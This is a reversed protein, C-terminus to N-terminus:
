LNNGNKWFCLLLLQNSNNRYMVHVYDKGVPLNHLANVSVLVTVDAMCFKMIPDFVPLPPVNFLINVLVPLVIVRVLIALYAPLLVFVGGIAVIQTINNSVHM